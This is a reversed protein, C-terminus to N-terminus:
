SHAIRKSDQAAPSLVPHHAARAAEAVEEVMTAEAKTTKNSDSSSGVVAIGCNGRAPRATLGGTAASALAVVMWRATGALRERSRRLGPSVRWPDTV